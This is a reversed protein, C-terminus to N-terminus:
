DMYKAGGHIFLRSRRLAQKCSIYQQLTLLGKTSHHLCHRINCRLTGQVNEVPSVFFWLQLIVTRVEKICLWASTVCIQKNSIMKTKVLLFLIKCLNVSKLNRVSVLLVRPKHTHTKQTVRVSRVSIAIVTNASLWCSVPIEPVPAHRRQCRSVCVGWMTIKGFKTAPWVTQAYTPNYFQPRHPESGESYSMSFGYFCAEGGAKGNWIQDDSFKARGDWKELGDSLTMTQHQERERQTKTM